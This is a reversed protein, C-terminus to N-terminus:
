NNYIDADYGKGGPKGDTGYSKIIYNNPDHTNPEYTFPRDWPDYLQSTKLYPGAWGNLGPPCVVLDELKSPLKGTNLKYTDIASEVPAMKARASNYPHTFDNKKKCSEGIIVVFLILGLSIAIKISNKM